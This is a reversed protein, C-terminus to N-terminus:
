VKYYGPQTGGKVHTEIHPVHQACLFSDLIDNLQKTASDNAIDIHINFDGAVVIHCKYLALTVLYKVVVVVVVGTYCGIKWSLRLLGTGSLYFWDPNLHPLLSPTQPHLPMLQVMHLCDAGRDLCVVM